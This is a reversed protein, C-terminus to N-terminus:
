YEIFSARALLLLTVQLSLKSSARMKTYGLMSGALILFGVLKKVIDVKLGKRVPGLIM